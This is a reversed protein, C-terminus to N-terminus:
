AVNTLDLWCGLGLPSTNGDCRPWRVGAGGRRSGRLKQSLNLGSHDGGGDDCRCALGSSGGILGRGNGGWLRCSATLSLGRCLSLRCLGLIHCCLDLAGRCLRSVSLASGLINNDCNCTSVARSCMDYIGNASLYDRSIHEFLM